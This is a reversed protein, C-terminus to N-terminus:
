AGQRWRDNVVQLQEVAERAEQNRLAARWWALRKHRVLISAIIRQVRARDSYTVGYERVFRAVDADDIAGNVQAKYDAVDQAVDTPTQGAWMEMEAFERM